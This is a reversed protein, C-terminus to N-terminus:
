ELSQTFSLFTTGSSSTHIESYEDLVNPYAQAMSQKGYKLIVKIEDYQNRKYVCTFLM